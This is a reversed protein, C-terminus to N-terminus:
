PIAWIVAGGDVDSAQMTHTVSGVTFTYFPSQQVSPLTFTFRCYADKDAGVLKGPDLDATAVIDAASNKVTLQAGGKLDVYDRIGHCAGTTDSFDVQEATTTMDAPFLALHLEGNVSIATATPAPTTKAATGSGGSCATAAAAILVGVVVLPKSKM